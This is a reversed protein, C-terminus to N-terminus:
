VEKTALDRVLFGAANKAANRAAFHEKPKAMVRSVENRECEDARLEAAEAFVLISVGVQGVEMSVDGAPRAFVFDVLQHAQTQDGGAAQYLEVAEELLRLARQPLSTTEAIGFTERAWASIMFQRATRVASTPPANASM